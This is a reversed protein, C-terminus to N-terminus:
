LMVEHSQRTGPGRLDVGHDLARHPVAGLHAQLGVSDIGVAGAEDPEADGPQQAEVQDGPEFLDVLHLQVERGPAV